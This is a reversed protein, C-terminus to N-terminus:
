YSTFITGSLSLSLFLFYIVYWSAVFFIFMLAVRKVIPLHLGWITKLPLVMIAVDLVFGLVCQADFFEQVGFCKGGKIRRDWWFALPRCQLCAAVFLSLGTGLVSVLLALTVVRMGGQWNFVRLYLCLIALKPLTVAVFYVLEFVWVLKYWEVLKYPSKEQLDAAHTGVGGHTVMIVGLVCLAMTFPYAALIFIDDAGFLPNGGGGGGSWRRPIMMPPPPSTAAIRRTTQYQLYKALFRLVLSVTTLIMASLSVTTLTTGSYETPIPTM